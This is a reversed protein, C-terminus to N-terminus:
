DHCGVAHKSTKACCKADKRAKQRDLSRDDGPSRDTDTTPDRTLKKM